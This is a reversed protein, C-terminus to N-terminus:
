YNQHFNMKTGTMKSWNTDFHLELILILYFSINIFSLNQNSFIGNLFNLAQFFLEFRDFKPKLVEPHDLTISILTCRQAFACLLRKSKHAAARATRCRCNQQSITVRADWDYVCIMLNAHGYLADRLTYELKWLESKVILYLKSQLSLNKLISTKPLCVFASNKSNFSKIIM